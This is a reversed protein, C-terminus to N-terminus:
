FFPPTNAHFNKRTIKGVSECLSEFRCIRVTVHGIWQRFQRHFWRPIWVPIEMCHHSRNVMLITPPIVSLLLGDTIGDAFTLIHGIQRGKGENNRRRRGWGLERKSCVVLGGGLFFFRGKRQVFEKLKTTVVDTNQNVL